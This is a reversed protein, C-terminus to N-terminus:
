PRKGYIKMKLEKIINSFKKFVKKDNVKLFIMKNNILPPLFNKYFYIYNRYFNPNDLIQKKVSLDKIRLVRRKIFDRDGYLFILLFNELERIKELNKRCNLPLKNTKAYNFAINSIVSREMLVNKKQKLTMLAKNYRTLHRKYYWRSIDKKINETIHNPESLVICNFEKALYDILKTKGIQWFGEVIIIKPLKVFDKKLYLRAM